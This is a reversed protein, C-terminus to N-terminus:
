LLRDLNFAGNAGGPTGAHYDGLSVVADADVDLDARPFSSFVLFWRGRCGLGLDLAHGVMNETGIAHIPFLDVPVRCIMDSLANRLPVRQLIMDEDSSIRAMSM